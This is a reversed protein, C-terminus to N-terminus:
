IHILSPFFAERVRHAAEQLNQLDSQPEDRGRTCKADAIWKQISGGNLVRLPAEKAWERSVGFHTMIRHLIRERGNRGDEDEEGHVYEVLTEIEEPPVGMKLAVQVMLTPHCNVMDIDHYFRKVLRKRLGKPCNQMSPYSATRRGIVRRKHYTTTIKRIDPAEEGDRRPPHAAEDAKELWHLWRTDQQTRNRKPKARLRLLEKAHAVADIMEVRREGGGAADDPAFLAPDLEADMAEQVEEENIDGHAQDWEAVCVSRQLRPSWVRWADVLAEKRGDFAEAARCLEHQQWVLPM